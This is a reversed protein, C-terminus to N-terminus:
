TKYPKGASVVLKWSVLNSTEGATGTDYVRLTWAGTVGGNDMVSFVCPSLAASLCGPQATGQYPAVLATSDPASAGTFLYNVSEDDLTLPGISVGTLGFFLQTTAGNPATLRALLNDAPTAGTTGLTQVTVNVDRIKTGKFKKGGVDITSALVGFTGVGANPIPASVTKAINVTGGTKGKKKKAQAAGASLGVTVSLALVAAV